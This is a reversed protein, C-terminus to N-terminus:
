LKDIEEQIFEGLIYKEIGQEIEILYVKQIITM